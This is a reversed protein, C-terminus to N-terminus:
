CVFCSAEADLVDIVLHCGLDFDVEFVVDVRVPVFVMLNCHGVVHMLFPDRRCLYGLCSLELLPRVQKEVGKLVRCLRINDVFLIWEM